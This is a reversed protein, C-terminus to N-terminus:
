MWKLFRKYKLQIGNVEAWSTLEKMAQERDDMFRFCLNFPVIRKGRPMIGILPGDIMIWKIEGPLLRRNRLFISERGWKIETAKRLAQFMFFLLLLGCVCLWTVVFYSLAPHSHATNASNIHIMYIEIVIVFVMSLMSRLALPFKISTAFTDPM